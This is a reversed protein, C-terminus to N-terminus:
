YLIQIVWLKFSPFFTVLLYIFIFKLYYYCYNTNYMIIIHYCNLIIIQIAYRIIIVIQNNLHSSFLIINQCMASAWRIIIIAFSLDAWSTRRSV